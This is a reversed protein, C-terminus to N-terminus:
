DKRRLLRSKTDEAKVPSSQPLQLCESLRDLAKIFNDNHGYQSSEYFAQFFTPKLHKEKLPEAYRDGYKEMSHNMQEVRQLNYEFSRHFFNECTSSLKQVGEPKEIKIQFYRHIIQELKLLDKRTAQERGRKLGLFRGLFFLIVAAIAGILIGLILGEQKSDDQQLASKSQISAEQFRGEKFFNLSKTLDETAKEAKNLTYLKNKAEARQETTTYAIFKTNIEDSLGPFRIIAFPTDLGIESPVTGIIRMTGAGDITDSTVEKENLYIHFNVLDSEFQQPTSTIYSASVDVPETIKGVLYRRQLNLVEGNDGKIQEFGNTESTDSPIIANILSLDTGESHIGRNYQINDIIIGEDGFVPIFISILLTLLLLVPIIHDNKM